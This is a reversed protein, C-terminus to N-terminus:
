LITELQNHFRQILKEALNTLTAHFVFLNRGTQKCAVLETAYETTTKVKGGFIKLLIAKLKDYDKKNISKTNSILKKDEPSLRSLLAKCRDINSEIGDEELFVEFNELYDRINGSKSDFTGPQM